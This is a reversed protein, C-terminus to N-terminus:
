ARVGPIDVGVQGELQPGTALQDGQQSALLSRPDIQPADPGAGGAVPQVGMQAAQAQLMMLADPRIFKEVARVQFGEQLLYKALAIPDVVGTQVFPMMTQALALAKQRREQENNPSTSGAEVTFDYEGLVDDRNFPLWVQQGGKGVVRAVQEGTLFQQALALVKRAVETIFSEIVALKDNVRANTADQILAAETATRRTEPASGRQYESVGSVQMVDSITTQSWNFLDASIPIQPMPAIVDSFPIDEVVPVVVNDDSSELAQRGEPGFASEKILYKRAYRKRYNMMASRTKNLEQNLPEIMELDGMPYFCDPVDYNRAMVFPAGFNFPITRPEVLYEDCGEAYVCMVNHVLDYHEWLVVRVTQDGFRKRQSETFNLAGTIDTTGQLNARASAKYRRDKRVEDLPKVMRQAIWRADQLSTAEFDVFMDFPSVREIVPRDEIAVTRTSVIDSAIQDDTPLSAAMDPNEAAYADREAIRAEYESFVGEEDLPQESEKYKWGVKVWGHGIILFDKIAERFPTHFGFHTWWYNMIAQVYLSRDENMPDNALVNIRPHNVSISPYIVNITSFSINVLIRDEDADNSVAFQRGRYLDVMRQWLSEFGEDKRWKRSIEVQQQYHRLRQKNERSMRAM